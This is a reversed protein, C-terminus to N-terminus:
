WIIIDRWLSYADTIVDEDVVAAGEGANLM